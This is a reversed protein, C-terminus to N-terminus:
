EQRYKQKILNCKGNKLILLAQSDHNISNDDQYITSILAKTWIICKKLIIVNCLLLPLNGFDQAVFHDCFSKTFLENGDILATM